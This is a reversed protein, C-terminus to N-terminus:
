REFGGVNGAVWGRVPTSLGSVAEVGVAAAAWAGATTRAGAGIDGWGARAVGGAGAVVVLGASASARRWCPAACAFNPTLGEGPRGAGAGPM